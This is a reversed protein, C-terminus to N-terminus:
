MLGHFLTLKIRKEVIMEKYMGDTEDNAILTIGETEALIVGDNAQEYLDKRM